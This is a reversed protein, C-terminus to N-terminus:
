KFLRLKGIHSEWAMNNKGKKLQIVHYKKQFKDRKNINNNKYAFCRSKLGFTFLIHKLFSMPYM